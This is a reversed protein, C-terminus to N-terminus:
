EDLTEQRPLFAEIKDSVKQISDCYIEKSYLSLKDNVIETGELTVIYGNEIPAIRVRRDTIM